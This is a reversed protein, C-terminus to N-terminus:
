INEWVKGNFRQGCVIDGVRYSAFEKKCSHRIHLGLGLIFIGAIAWMGGREFGVTFELILGLTTLVLGGGVLMRIPRDM